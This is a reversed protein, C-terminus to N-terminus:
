QYRVGLARLQPKGVAKASLRLMAKSAHMLWPLAHEESNTAEPGADTVEAGRSATQLLASREPLRFRRRLSHPCSPRPPVPDNDRTVSPTGRARRMRRRRTRTRRDTPPDSCSRRNDRTRCRTRRTGLKNHNRHGRWKQRVLGNETVIAGRDGVCATDLTDSTVAFYAQTVLPINDRGLEILTYGSTPGSAVRRSSTSRRAM